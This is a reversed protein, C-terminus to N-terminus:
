LNQLPWCLDLPGHHSLPWHHDLPWPHDTTTDGHGWKAVMRCKSSEHYTGNDMQGTQMLKDDLPSWLSCSKCNQTNLWSTTVSLLPWALMIIKGFHPRVLQYSNNMHWGVRVRTEIHKAGVSMVSACKKSTGTNQSMKPDHKGAHSKDESKEPPKIPIFETQGFQSWCKLTILINKQYAKWITHFNHCKKESTVKNIDHFCASESPQLLADGEWMQSFIPLVPCLTGTKSTFWKKPPDPGERPNTFPLNFCHSNFMNLQKEEKM